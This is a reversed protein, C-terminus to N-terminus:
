GVSVPTTAQYLPKPSARRSEEDVAVFDVIEDVSIQV